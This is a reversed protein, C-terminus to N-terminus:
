AAEDLDDMWSDGDPPEYEQCCDYEDLDDMWDEDRLSEDRLVHVTEREKEFVTIQCNDRLQDLLINVIM